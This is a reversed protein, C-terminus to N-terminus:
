FARLAEDERPVGEGRTQVAIHTGSAERGQGRELTSFGEVKAWVSKVILICDKRKNTERCHDVHAARMGSKVDGGARGEVQWEEGM